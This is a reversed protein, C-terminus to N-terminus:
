LNESIQEKQLDTLLDTIDIKVDNINIVISHIKNSVNIDQFTCYGHCEEVREDMATYQTFEVYVKHEEIIEDQTYRM